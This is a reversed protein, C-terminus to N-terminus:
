GTGAGQVMCRRPGALGRARHGGGLGVEDWVVMDGVERDGEDLQNLSGGDIYGFLRELGQGREVLGPQGGVDRM